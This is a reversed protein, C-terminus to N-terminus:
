QQQRTLQTGIGHIRLPEELIRGVTLRPDLTSDSDQFIFQLERRLKKLDDKNMAFIDQGRYLVHGGTPLYLHLITKALTTKGCGSEGVLGLIEGRSINLSVDDVARIIHDPHRFRTVPNHHILFHKKLGKVQIM